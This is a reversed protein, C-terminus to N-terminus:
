FFRLDTQKPKPVSNRIDKPLESLKRVWPKDKLHPQEKLEDLVYVIMGTEYIENAKDEPLKEDLTVLYLRAGKMQEPVVQKWRERLTRKMALFIAKDPTREATKADPSVYDIRDMLKKTKKSPKEVPVGAQKLLLAIIEEFAYGGRSKRMQGARFELEKIVGVLDFLLAELKAWKDELSETSELIENIADKNIQMWLTLAKKFAESEYKRYVKFARREIEKTYYKFNRLVEEISFDKSLDLIAEELVKKPRPIVKKAAEVIKIIDM